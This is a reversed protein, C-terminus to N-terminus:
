ALLAVEVRPVTHAVAAALREVLIHQQTAPDLARSGPLSALLQDCECSSNGSFSAELPQGTCHWPSVLWGPGSYVDDMYM